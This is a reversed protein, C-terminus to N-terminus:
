VVLVGAAVHDGSGDNQLKGGNLYGKMFCNKNAYAKAFDLNATFHVGVCTNNRQVRNMNACDGMCDEMTFAMTTMIDINSGYMGKHCFVTFEKRSGNVTVFKKSGNATEGDGGTYSPCDFDLM